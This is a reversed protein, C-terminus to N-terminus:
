ASVTGPAPPLDERTLTDPEGLDEHWLVVVDFHGRKLDKRSQYFAARDENTHKKLPWVAQITYGADVAGKRLADLRDLDDATFYDHETRFLILANM